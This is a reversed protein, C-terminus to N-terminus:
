PRNVWTTITPAYTTPDITAYADTWNTPGITAQFLVKGTLYQTAGSGILPSGIAAPNADLTLSWAILAQGINFSCNNKCTTQFSSQPIYISDDVLFSDHGNPSASHILDCGAHIVCGTQAPIGPDHWTAEIQAGDIDLNVASASTTKASWTLTPSTSADFSCTSLSASLDNSVYLGESALRTPAPALPITCSGLRPETANRHPQHQLEIRRARSQRRPLHHRRERDTGTRLVRQLHQTSPKATKKNAAISARAQTADQPYAGSGIFAANTAAFAGATPFYGGGGDVANTPRLITTVTSGAGITDALGIMAIRPATPTARRGCPISITGSNSLQSNNAFVLQVGQDTPSVCTPGQMTGNITWTNDTSPFDLYYEGAALNITGACASTLGSGSTYIGPQLNCGSPTQVTGPPGAPKWEAAHGLSPDGPDMGIKPVVNNYTTHANCDKGGSATVSGTACNGGGATDNWAWVRGSPVDMGRVNIFSNSFVDGGITLTTNKTQTIGQGSPALTVLVARYDGAHILSDAQPCFSVNVTGTSGPYSFNTPCPSGTDEGLSGGSAENAKVYQMATRIAAEADASKARHTQYVASASMSTGAYSIAAAAIIGVCTVLFLVLLLAAGSERSSHRGAHQPSTMMSETARCLTINYDPTGNLTSGSLSLVLQFEGSCAGSVPYSVSATNVNTALPVSSAVSTTGYACSLRTLTSNQLVYAVTADAASATASSVSDM